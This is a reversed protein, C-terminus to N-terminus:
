ARGASHSLSCYHMLAIQPDHLPNSVNWHESDAFAAVSLKRSVGVHPIALGSDLLLKVGVLALQSIAALVGQSDDSFRRFVFLQKM